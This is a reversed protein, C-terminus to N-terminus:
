SIKFKLYTKYLIESIKMPLLYFRGYYKVVFYKSKFLGFKYEDNRNRLISYWPILFKFYLDYKVKTYTRTSIRSELQAQKYMKLFQGIFTEFLDYGGKKKIPQNIFKITNAIFYNKVDNDALLLSTHPFMKNLDIKDVEDITSGSYILTNSWSSLYSVKYLFTEKSLKLLHSNNKENLLVISNSPLNNTVTLLNELTDKRFLSYDNHLKRYQGSGLKLAEISNLYGSVKSQKIIINKFEKILPDEALEKSLFEKSNDSIVIEVYKLHKKEAAIISHITKRLIEFRNNTPICISLRINKM